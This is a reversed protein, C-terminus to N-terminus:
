QPVFMKIMRHPTKGSRPVDEEETNIQSIYFWTCVLGFVQPVIIALLLGGIIVYNEEVWLLFADTCGTLYIPTAGELREKDLAKSGCLTNAVENPKSTVCCTYPVGCALPGPASCNHYMNVEWDKFDTGGCCKFKKQVYDMINKFDLDDYYNMMGKRISKNFLKKTQTRLALVVIGGLLELVLFVVLTYMFIKLLTINDRLSGVAGILSVLLMVLGQVILIIAPALFAGDLTKYRQREVEAYIGISLIIGGVTLWFCCYGFLFLKLVFYQVKNECM